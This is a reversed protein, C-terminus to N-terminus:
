GKPNKGVIKFRKELLGRFSAVNWRVAQVPKFNSDLPRIRLNGEETALDSVVTDIQSFLIGGDIMHPGSFLFLEATNIGGAIGSVTLAVVSTFDSVELKLGIDFSPTINLNLSVPIVGDYLEQGERKLTFTQSFWREIQM